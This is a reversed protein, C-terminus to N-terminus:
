TAGGAPVATGGVGPDGAGIPPEGIPPEGAAEPAPEGDPM